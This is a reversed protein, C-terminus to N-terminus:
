VKQTLHKSVFLQRGFKSNLTAFQCYNTGLHNQIDAVSIVYKGKECVTKNSRYSVLPKKVVFTLTEYYPAIENEFLTADIGFGGVFDTWLSTNKDFNNGTQTSVSAFVKGETNTYTTM